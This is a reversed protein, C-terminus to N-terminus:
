HRYLLLHVHSLFIRHLSVPKVPFMAGNKVSLLWAVRIGRHEKGKMMKFYPRVKAM